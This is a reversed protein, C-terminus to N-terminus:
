QQMGMLAAMLPSQVMPSGGNGAVVEMIKSLMGGPGAPLEGSPMTPVNVMQAMMPMRMRPRPIEFEATEPFRAAELSELQANLMRNKVMLVKAVMRSHFCLFM